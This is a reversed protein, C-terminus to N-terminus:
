LLCLCLSIVFVIIAVLETLQQSFRLVSIRVCNELGISHNYLFLIVAFIDDEVIV